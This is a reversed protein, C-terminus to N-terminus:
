NEYERHLARLISNEAYERLQKNRHSQAAAGSLWQKDYPIAPNPPNGYFSDEIVTWDEAKIYEGVAGKGIEIFVGTSWVVMSVAQGLFEFMYDERKSEKYYEEKM